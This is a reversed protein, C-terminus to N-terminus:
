FLKGGQAIYIMIAITVGIAILLKPNEMLAGLPDAGGKEVKNMVNSTLITNLSTTDIVNTSLPNGNIDKNNTNSSSLNAPSIQIPNPNDYYYFMYYDTSFLKKVKLTMIEDYRLIYSCGKYNFNDKKGTIDVTDPQKNNKDYILAKVKFNSPKSVKEKPQFMNNLFGQKETSNNNEVAKSKDQSKVKEEKTNSPKNTAM